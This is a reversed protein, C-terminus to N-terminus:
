GTKREAVALDLGQTLIDLLGGLILPYDAQYSRWFEDERRRRDFGISSLQLSISAQELAGHDQLNEIGSVIVPRSGLSIIPRKGLALPDRSFSPRHALECLANVFWGPMVKVDDYALVWRDVSRSTLDDPNQPVGLLPEVHPDVLGSLVRALTSKATGEDGRLVLIPRPGCPLLASALWVVARRFHDDTLNVYSRLIDISGNHSPEPLPLFGQCRRFQISPRNVVSWGGSRIKVARGSPGGLDVFFNSCADTGDGGVRIFIPMLVCGARAQREMSTIVRRIIADAPAELSRPLGGILWARFAASDLSHFERRCGISLRVYFRWDPSRFWRVGLARGMLLRYTQDSERTSDTNRDDRRPDNM